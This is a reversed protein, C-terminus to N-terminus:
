YLSDLSGVLHQRIRRDRLEEQRSVSHVFSPTYGLFQM